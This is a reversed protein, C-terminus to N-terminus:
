GRGEGTGRMGAADEHILSFGTRRPKADPHVSCKQIRTLRGVPNVATVYRCDVSQIVLVRGRMRPDNDRIRQGPQLEVM